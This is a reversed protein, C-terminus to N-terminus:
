FFDNQFTMMNTAITLCKQSSSLDNGIEIAQIAGTINVWYISLNSYYNADQIIGPTLSQSQILTYFFNQNFQSFCYNTNLTYLAVNSVDLWDVRVNLAMDSTLLNNVTISSDAYPWIVYATSTGSPVVANGHYDTFYIRRQTVAVDSGTSTDVLTVAGPNAASQEVSFSVDLAM